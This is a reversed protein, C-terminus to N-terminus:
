FVQTGTYKAHIAFDKYSPNHPGVSFLVDFRTMDQPLGAGYMTLWRIDTQDNVRIILGSCKDLAPFIWKSVPTGAPVDLRVPSLNMSELQKVQRAIEEATEDSISANVQEKASQKTPKKKKAMM